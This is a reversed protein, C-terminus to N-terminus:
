LRTVLQFAVGAGSKASVNKLGVIETALPLEAVMGILTRFSLPKLPVTVSMHTDAWCFTVQETLGLVTVGSPDAVTVMLAIVLAANRGPMGAGSTGHHTYLKPTAAIKPIWSRRPRGCLSNAMTMANANNAPMMLQPPRVDAMGFLDSACLERTWCVALWCVTLGAVLGAGERGARIPAQRM